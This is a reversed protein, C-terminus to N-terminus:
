EKKLKDFATAEEKIKADLEEKRDNLSNFDEILKERLDIYEQLTIHLVEVEKKKDYEETKEAIQQKVSKINVVECSLSRILSSKETIEKEVERVEEVLTDFAAKSEKRMTTIRSNSSRWMTLDTVIDLYKKRVGPDTEIFAALDKQAVFVSALFMKSDMGILDTIFNQAETNGGCVKTGNEFVDLYSAKNKRGRTVVYNNGEVDFNSQVYAEESPALKDNWVEEMRDFTGVGYLSFLLSMLLSTKGTANSRDEAGELRGVIGTLGYPISASVKDRYSAFGKVELSNLKM